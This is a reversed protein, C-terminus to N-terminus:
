HDCPSGKASTLCSPCLASWEGGDVALSLFSCCFVEVGWVGEHCPMCWPLERKSLPWSPSWSTSSPNHISIIQNHGTSVLLTLRKNISDAEVPKVYKKTIFLNKSLNTDTFNSTCTCSHIKLFRYPIFCIEVNEKM